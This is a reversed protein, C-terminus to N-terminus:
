SRPDRAGDPTRRPGNRRSARLRRLGELAVALAGALALAVGVAVLPRHAFAVGGIAGLATAYGAWLLAAALDFVVFRWVHMRTVGATLMTATRGGPVFRSVIVLTAGRRELEAEAWARFAQIRQRRELRRLGGASVRGLGYAVNDGIAAGAAASVFVAALDLEGAAALAAATIVTAESPVVPFVADLAAIALVLLYVWDSSTAFDILQQTM